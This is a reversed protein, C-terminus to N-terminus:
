RFEHCKAPDLGLDGMCAARMAAHFGEPGCWAVRLDCWAAGGGPGLSGGAGAAALAPPPLPKILTALLAASVRGSLLLGAAPPAARGGPQQATASAAASGWSDPPAADPAGYPAAESLAHLVRVRPCGDGGTSALRDLTERLPIDAETRNCTLLTVAVVARHDGGGGNANANAVAGYVLQLAPTIGTGAGVLVLHVGRGAGGGVGGGGDGSERERGSGSGGLLWDPPLGGFAGRMAVTAGAQLAALPRSLVGKPYAKVLLGFTDRQGPRVVPTYPRVVEVRAGGGGSDFADEGEGEGEGEGGGGGGGGSTTTPAAAAVDLCVDVHRGRFALADAVSGPACSFTLLVQGRGAPRTSAVTFLAFAERDLAPKRPANHATHAASQALAATAAGPFRAADGLLPPGMLGGGGSGARKPMAWPAVGDGGRMSSAVGEEVSGALLESVAARNGVRAAGGRSSSGFPGACGLGGGGPGGGARLRKMIDGSRGKGGSGGSGRQAPAPKMFAYHDSAVSAPGRTAGGTCDGAAGTAAPAAASEAAAAESPAAGGDLRGDLLRVWVRGDGRGEDVEHVRQRPEPSAEFGGGAGGVHLRRGDSLRIKYHHWPCTLCQESKKGGSASDGAEDSCDEIDALLLPGGMHYCTADIAHLVGQARVLAVWRGASRDGLVTSAGLGRQAKPALAPSAAAAAAGGPPKPDAVQVLLRSDEAAVEAASAVDVFGDWGGGAPAAAPAPAATPVPAPQPERPPPAETPSTPQYPGAPQPESPQSKSAAAPAPAPKPAPAASEPAPAPSADLDVDGLYLAGIMGEGNVWSHYQNFLATCDTGAGELLMAVGGPHYQLYPTINFVRGRFVTWCDDETAHLAVEALSIKRPPKGDRGSLNPTSQVKMM